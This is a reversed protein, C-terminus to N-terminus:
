LSLSLPLSLSLSLSLPLSVSVCLSLSASLCQSLSLSLSLSLKKMVASAHKIAQKSKEKAPEPTFSWSPNWQYPIHQISDGQGLDKAAEARCYWGCGIFILLAQRALAKLALSASKSAAMPASSMDVSLCTATWLRSVRSNQAAAARMYHADVAIPETSLCPGSWSRWELFRWGQLRHLGSEGTPKGQFSQVSSSWRAQQMQLFKRLSAAQDSACSPGAFFHCSKM